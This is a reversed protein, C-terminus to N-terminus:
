QLGKLQEVAKEHLLREYANTVPLKISHQLLRRARDRHESEDLKLLGVAYELPVAKVNPALELARNLHAMADEERAKYTIRALFSGLFGVVEAHWRGLTVHAAVMDPDLRLANEAAERIQEAYGRNSAEFSGVTEALRGIAHAVQLHAYANRTDSRVARRALVVAHQFLSEKDGDEALYQTHITLSEAALALAQSTGLSQGIRAAELFRGEAYASRAEEMSQAAALGTLLLIPVASLCCSCLFSIWRSSCRM